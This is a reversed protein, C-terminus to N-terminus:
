QRKPMDGVRVVGLRVFNSSWWWPAEEHAELKYSWTSLALLLDYKSWKVNVNYISRCDFDLIYLRDRVPAFGHFMGNLYIFCGTDKINSKYGQSMLRSASIINRILVPVYYCNNLEMLFWSPLHLQMTGVELAVIRAKNGVWTDVHGREVSRSRVLVQLSNNIHIMYVHTTLLM